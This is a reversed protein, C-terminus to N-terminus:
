LNRYFDKMNITTELPVKFDGISSAVMRTSYYPFYVSNVTLIKMYANIQRSPDGWYLDSDGVPSIWINWASVSTSWYTLPVWCDDEDLPLYYDSYAWGVSQRGTKDAPEFWMSTDCAWTDIVGDYLWENDDTSFNHKSGADFWRLRLMEIRYQSYYEWNDANYYDGYFKRRFYLRYKGDHSILYLEQIHDADRIASMNPDTPKWPKEDDWDWVINNNDNKDETDEHVDTFLAEYQGYFQEGEQYCPTTNNHRVVFPLHSKDQSKDSSCYYIDKYKWSSNKASKNGYHTFQTCHGDKWINWEFNDWRKSTWVCGVMQRNFYEEYDVTYDQMLINLREFFEYWQQIVDQRANVERNSRIVFNYLSFIAPLILSIIMAVFVLEVLTFAYRRFRFKKM